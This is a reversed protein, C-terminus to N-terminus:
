AGAPVIPAELSGRPDALRQAVIAPGYEGILAWAQEDEAEWAAERNGRYRRYADLAASPVAVARLSETEADRRADRERAEEAARREAITRNEVVLQDWDADSVLFLSNNHGPMSGCCTSRTMVVTLSPCQGDLKIEGDRSPMAYWTPILFGESPDALYAEELVYEAYNPSSRLVRKVDRTRRIEATREEDACRKTDRCHRQADEFATNLLEAQGADLALFGIGEIRAYHSAGVDHLGKYWHQPEPTKTPVAYATGNALEGSRGGVEAYALTRDYIENTRITVPVDKGTVTRLTFTAIEM